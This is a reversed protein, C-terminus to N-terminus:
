RIVFSLVILLLLLSGGVLAIRCLDNWVYRYEAAYESYPRRVVAARATSETLRTRGTRSSLAPAVTDRDDPAARDLVPEPAPSIVDAPSRPRRKRTKQTALRQAVARSTRPM